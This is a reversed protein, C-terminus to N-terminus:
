DAVHCNIRIISLTESGQLRQSVSFQNVCFNDNVPHSVRPREPPSAPYRLGVKRARAVLVSSNQQGSVSSEHSSKSSKDYPHYCGKKHSSSVSYDKNDYQAIYNSELCMTQFLTALQLPVTRFAAM